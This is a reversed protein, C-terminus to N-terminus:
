SLGGIQEGEHNCVTETVWMGWDLACTQYSESARICTHIHTHKHLAQIGFSLFVYDLLHVLMAHSPAVTVTCLTPIATLKTLYPSPTPASINQQLIKLQDCKMCFDYLTQHSVVDAGAMGSKISLWPAWLHPPKSTHCEGEHFRSSLQTRSDAYHPSSCDSLQGVVEALLAIIISLAKQFVNSLHVEPQKQSATLTKHSSIFLFKSPM